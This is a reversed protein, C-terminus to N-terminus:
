KSLAGQKVRAWTTIAKGHPQVMLSTCYIGDEGTGAYLVSEHSLLARVSLGELGASSWTQRRANFVYVGNDRLGAFLRRDLVALSTIDNSAPLGDMPYEWEQTTENWRAIGTQGGVYLRNNLVAWDNVRAGNDLTRLMEWTWGNDFARALWHSSMATWLYGDFQTMSWIDDGWNWHSAFDEWTEGRDNSVYTGSHYAVAIIGDFNVLVRRIRGWTREGDDWEEFRLGGRITKWTEGADDSRFIGDKWTGAYVTNGDIAIASASYTFGSMRRWIRGQDDSVFTGYAGAYIRNGEAELVYVGGTDAGDILQIWPAANGVPEQTLTIMTVLFIFTTQMFGRTWM